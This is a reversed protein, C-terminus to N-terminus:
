SLGTSLGLEDARAAIEARSGVGLKELVRQVHNAATKDTIVLADAMQRNRLGRALLQAVELERATLPGLRETPAPPAAATVPRALDLAVDLELLRGAGEFRAVQESPLCAALEARAREYDARKTPTMRTGLEDLTAGASGFLRAALHAQRLRVSVAALGIVCEAVGAAIRGWRAIAM